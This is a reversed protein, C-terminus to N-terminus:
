FNKNTKSSKGAFAYTLYMAYFLLSSHFIKQVPENNSLYSSLGFIVLALPPLYKTVPKIKEFVAKSKRSLLDVSTM